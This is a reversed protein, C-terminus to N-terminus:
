PTPRAASSSVLTPVLARTYYVLGGTAVGLLFTVAVLAWTARVMSRSAADAASSARSITEELKILRRSVEGIEQTLKSASEATKRALIVQTQTGFYAIHAERDDAPYQLTQLLNMAFKEIDDFNAKKTDIEHM